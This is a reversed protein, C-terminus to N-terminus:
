NPLEDIQLVEFSTTKRGSKVENGGWLRWTVEYDYDQTGNPLMIAVQGNLVDKSTNVTFQKV